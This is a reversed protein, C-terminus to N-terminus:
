SDLGRRTVEAALESRSAIELKGFIHSLHTQVTRRSIFMRDGIQPNTLGEAVLAVVKLETPTLSEWGSRPRSRRGWGRSVHEIVGDVDVELVERRIREITAADLVTALSTRWTRTETGLPVPVVLGIEDALQGAAEFLRAADQWSSSSSAVAGLADLAGVLDPRADLEGFTPLAEHVLREATDFDGGAIMARAEVLRARADLWRNSVGRAVEGAERASSVAADLDASCRQLESLIVLAFAHVWPPGAVRALPIAEQVSEEAGSLDGECFRLVALAIVASLLGPPDNLREASLRAETAFSRARQYEGRYAATTALNSTLYGEFQPNGLRRCIDIGEVAVAEAEEFDGQGVCTWALWLRNPILALDMGKARARDSAEVFMPRALRFEGTQTEIIALTTQGRIHLYELGVAEAAELSESVLPRARRPDLFAYITGLAWLAPAIIRKDGTARGLELATEGLTVATPGDVATAAIRAVEALAAGRLAPPADTADLASTARQKAESWHGRTFWYTALAATMRLSTEVRHETAWDLAARLNEHESGLAEVREALHRGQLDTEAEIALEAYYNMHRDRTSQMEGAEDLKMVAFNRLTELLRYPAHRRTRDMQVLSRDVLALFTERVGGVDGADCVVQAAAVSFFGVFSGLRRFVKQQDQTLLGYSWEVSALLTQQRPLATRVGGTLLRFREDLAAAVGEVALSRVRAAALEIALPVGDLRRCIAAIVSLAQANVEFSADASRARDVFLLVAESEHADPISFGSDDPPLSLPPVQFIAEGPVGLPERSTALVKVEPCSRLLEDVFAASASILHECNDVVILCRSDSLRALLQDQQEQFPLEKLGLAEATLQPIFRGDGIRALDVFWIGDYDDMWDRTAEVALRTKGVGASGTLTLLRSRQLLAQLDGRESERGVFTTLVAPLNTSGM